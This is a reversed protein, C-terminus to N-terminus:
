GNTFRGVAQEPFGIEVYKCPSLFCVSQSTQRSLDEGNKLYLLFQSVWFHGRVKRSKRSVPGPVCVAGRSANKSSKTM